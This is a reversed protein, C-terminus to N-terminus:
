ALDKLFERDQDAVISRRMSTSVHQDITHHPDHMPQGEFFVGEYVEHKMLSMLMPLLVQGIIEHTDNPYITVKSEAHITTWRNNERDPADIDCLLWSEEGRVEMTLRPRLLFLIGRLEMAKIAREVDQVRDKATFGRSM